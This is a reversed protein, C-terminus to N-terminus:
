FTGTVNLFQYVCMCVDGHRTTISLELLNVNICTQNFAPISSTLQSQGEADCWVVGCWVVGCWVVGCPLLDCWKADCVYCWM